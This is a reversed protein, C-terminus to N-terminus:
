IHKWVKRRRILRVTSSSVGYMLGIEDLSLPSSSVLQLIARADDASIKATQTGHRRRDAANEERTGWCLNSLWNNERNGDLHRAEYGQPRYGRFCELVLRHVTVTREGHELALGVKWYGRVTKGPSRRKWQGRRYTWVSGNSGIHYGPYDPHERYEIVAISEM